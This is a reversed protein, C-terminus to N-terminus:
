KTIDKIHDIVEDISIDKSETDKRLKVEVKNDILGKGVVIRVPIGILDMDNFKVGAREDRDDLLTDIGLNNLEDYLKNAFEIQAEDKNNITIIAVKYPAIDMPWVLGKEDNNQEAVAAMCRGIGIGYCGMVVPNLKNNEDLYNLNLCESYKTGLKFTNGIEIGKVTKLNGGCKPCKDDDSILRIDGMLDYKFDKLNVNIYHYDEINAGTVFNFMTKVESDIVVRANIDIPGIFGQVSIKNIEEETAMEINNAGILKSLKVDNLERDGRLLCLIIEGDANVVVSKLLKSTPLNLYNSVEDITKVGPTHIMEREKEEEIIAEDYVCEAVEINSSYDCKDCVILSDEGIPTIAQFEESLLGGMVGTDAKVIKYQIGMRDFINKYAQYMLSYSKDLSEYDKDFSYADKMKFERVRILGYRPRPEDRFKNQIQYINFPMDKYSRIKEKAALVFLEEHTPGLVYPKDFRDELTFVSSGFLKTRGSKEYVERHILSPMLIETAGSKNMEDRVIDEIKNLVRLGLPMFMYIGSSSKKIMGSRVLLNGSISDEDKVNERLTYFFSNKLKM